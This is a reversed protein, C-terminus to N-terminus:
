QLRPETLIIQGIFTGPSMSCTLGAAPYGGTVPMDTTSFSIRAPAGASATVTRTTDFRVNGTLTHATCTVSAPTSGLGGVIVDLAFGQDMTYPRVTDWGRDYALNCRIVIDLDSPNTITFASYVPSRTAPRSLTCAAGHTLTQETSYQVAQARITAPWAAAVIVMGVLVRGANGVIDM